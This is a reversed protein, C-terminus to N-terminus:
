NLFFTCFLFVYLCCGELFVELQRALLSLLFTRKSCCRLHKGYWMADHWLCIQVMQLFAANVIISVNIPVSGDRFVPDSGCSELNQLFTMWFPWMHSFSLNVMASCVDLGCEMHGGGHRSLCLLCCRLFSSCSGFPHRRCEEPLRLDRLCPEFCSFNSLGSASAVGDM